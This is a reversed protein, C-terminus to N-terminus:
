EELAEWKNKGECSKCICDAKRCRRCDYNALDCPETDEPNNKCNTCRRASTPAPVPDAPLHMDKALFDPLPIPEMADRKAEMGEWDWADFGGGDAFQINSPWVREMHGDEFEVLGHVSHLQYRDLTDEDEMGKPKVPRASDTWRHFIARRGNAWCPRTQNATIMNNITAM